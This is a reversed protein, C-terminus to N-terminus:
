EALKPFLARDLIRRSLDELTIYQEADRYFIKDGPLLGVQIELPPQGGRDISFGPLAPVARVSVESRVQWGGENEDRVAIHIGAGQKEIEAAPTGFAKTYSAVCDALERYLEELAGPLRELTRAERQRREQEEQIRMELWQSSMPSGFELLRSDCRGFAHGFRGAASPPGGANPPEQISRQGAPFVRCFNQYGAPVRPAKLEVCVPADHEQPGM